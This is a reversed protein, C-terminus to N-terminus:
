DRELKKIFKAPIGGWLENPPIRTGSLVLSLAGVISDEGIVVDPCIVANSGICAGDKIVIRGTRDGITSHTFMKVGHGIKVNNGLVIEEKTASLVSFKGLEINSGIKLKGLSKKVWLDLEDQM